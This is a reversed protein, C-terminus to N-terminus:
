LLATTNDRQRAKWNVKQFAKKVAEDTVNEPKEPPPWPLQADQRSPAIIVALLLSHTLVSLSRFPIRLARLRVQM